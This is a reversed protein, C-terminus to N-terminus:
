VDQGEQFKLKETRSGGRLRRDRRAGKSEALATKDENSTNERFRVLLEGGRKKGKKKLSNPAAPAKASLSPEAKVSLLAFPAFSTLLLSCALALCVSKAYGSVALVRM